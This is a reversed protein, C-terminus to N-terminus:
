RPWPRLTLSRTRTAPLGTATACREVAADLEDPTISSVPKTETPRAVRSALREMVDVHGDNPRLQHRYHQQLMRTNRHGFM